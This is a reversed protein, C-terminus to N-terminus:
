SHPKITQNNTTQITYVLLFHINTTYILDAISLVLCMRSIRIRKDITRDVRQNTLCLTRGVLYIERCQQQMGIVIIIAMIGWLKRGM